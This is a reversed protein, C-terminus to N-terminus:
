KKVRRVILLCLVALMVALLVGAGIALGTYLTFSTNSSTDMGGTSGSELREITEILSLLKASNSVLAKDSDNLVNYAILLAQVEDKDVLSINEMLDLREAIEQPSIYIEQSIVKIARSYVTYELSDKKYTYKLIIYDEGDIKEQMFVSASVNSKRGDYYTVFTDKELIDGIIYNGDFSLEKAFDVWKEAVNNTIGLMGSTMGSVVSSYTEHTWHYSVIGRQSMKNLTDTSLGSSTDPVTNYSGCMILGNSGFSFGNLNATPIEPLQKRMNELQPTDFAIVVVKSKMYPYIELMEALKTVLNGDSTKLELVLVVDKDAFEEFFEELTPINVGTGMISGGNLNKIIKYQRLQELTMNAVTGTGNTVDNITDNHMIVIHEDKTLKLDIELHTAGYNYAEICGELSNEYSALALGRHAINLPMRTLSNKTKYDEFTRYALACDDLWIGYVGTNVMDAVEIKTSADSKVWVAKFRGQLYEINATTADKKSLVVTSAYSKNAEAVINELSINKQNSYDVIGRTWVCSRRVGYVLEANDSAIAIDLVGSEQLWTCLKNVQTSTSIYVVPIVRSRLNDTLVDDLSGIVKGQKDVVNLDDDVNFVANQPREGNLSALLQEYKDNTDISSIVSPASVLGSGNVTYTSAITTDLTSKQSNGSGKTGTIQLSTVTVSSRNVCLAFGGESYVGGMAGYKDALSYEYVLVDDFYHEVYGNQCVVHMTHEAKNSPKAGTEVNASDTFSPSGTVTSQASTGKVRINMLYGELMGKSTKNTHYFLGIWRSDDDYSNFKFKLTMDFDSVSGIGTAIEYVAGHYKQANISSNSHSIQVGGNANKASANNADSKEYLSWDAPLGNSFDANYTVSNDTSEEAFATGISMCLCLTLILVCCFIGFKKM